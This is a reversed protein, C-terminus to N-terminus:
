YNKTSAGLPINNLDSYKIKSKKIQRIEISNKIIM